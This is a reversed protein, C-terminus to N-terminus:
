APRTSTMTMSSCSRARAGCTSASPMRQRTVSVIIVLASRLASSARSTRAARSGRGHVHRDDDRDVAEVAGLAAERLQERRVLPLRKGERREARHDVGNAFRAHPWDHQRRVGAQGLEKTRAHGDDGFFGATEPRFACSSTTSAAVRSGATSIRWASRGSAVPAARRAISAAAAASPVAASTRLGSPPM